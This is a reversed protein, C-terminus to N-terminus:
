PFFTIHGEDGSTEVNFCFKRRLPMDYRKTTIELGDKFIFFKELFLDYQPLSCCVEWNSNYLYTLFNSGLRCANPCRFERVFIKKNEFM